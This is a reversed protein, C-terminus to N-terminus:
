MIVHAHYKLRGEENTNLPTPCPTRITKIWQLDAMRIKFFCPTKPNTCTKGQLNKIIKSYYRAEPCYQSCGSSGKRMFPSISQDFVPAPVCTYNAMPNEKMNKFSTLEVIRSIVEDSVSLDLYRM